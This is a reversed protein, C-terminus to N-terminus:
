AWAAHLDQSHLSKGTCSSSVTAAYHGLIGPHQAHRLLKMYRLQRTYLDFLLCGLSFIDCREDYVCHKTVQAHQM